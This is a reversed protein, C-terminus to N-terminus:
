LRIIIAEHHRNTSRGVPVLFLSFRGLAVHELIYTDQTLCASDSSGVFMLSFSERGAIRAPIKSIAKLDTIKTLRLNVAASGANIKFTTNLHPKFAAQTFGFLSTANGESFEGVVEPHGVVVEALAAPLGACILGLTGTKLFNRRTTAM